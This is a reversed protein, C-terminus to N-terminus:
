LPTGERVSREVDHAFRKALTVLRRETYFRDFTREYCRGQMVFGLVTYGHCDNKESPPETYISVIGDYTAVTGRLYYEGHPCLTKALLITPRGLAYSRSHTKVTPNEQL